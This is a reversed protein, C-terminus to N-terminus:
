TYQKPLILPERDSSFGKISSRPSQLPLIYSKKECSNQPWRSKFICESNTVNKKQCVITSVIHETASILDQKKRYFTVNNGKRGRNKYKYTANFIGRSNTNVVNKILMRKFAIQNFVCTWNFVEIISVLEIQSINQSM